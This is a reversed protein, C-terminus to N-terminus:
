NLSNEGVKDVQVKLKGLLVNEAMEMMVEMGNGVDPLVKELNYHDGGGIGAGM